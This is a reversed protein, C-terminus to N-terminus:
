ENTQADQPFMSIPIPHLRRHNPYGIKHSELANQTFQAYGYIITMVILELYKYRTQIGKWNLEGTSEDVYLIPNRKLIYDLFEIAPKSLGGTTEAAFAIFRGSPLEFLKSYDNFKKTVANVASVGTLNSHLTEPSNDPRVITFDIVKDGLPDRVILDAEKRQADYIASPDLGNKIDFYSRVLNVTRKTNTSIGEWKCIESIIDRLRNHRPTGHGCSTLYFRDQNCGNHRSPCICDNVRIPAQLRDQMALEFHVTALRLRHNSPISLIWIHACDACNALFSAKYNGQLSDLFNQQRLKDEKYSVEKQILRAPSEFLSTLSLELPLLNENKLEKFNKVFEMITPINTVPVNSATSEELELIQKVRPFVKTLTPLILCWSGVYAARRTNTMSKVSLGGLKAPTQIVTRMRNVENLELTTRPINALDLVFDSTKNDFDKMSDICWPPPTGRIIHNVKPILCLRILQYLLHSYSKKTIHVNRIGEFLPNTLEEVRKRVWLKGKFPDNTVPLGLIEVSDTESPIPIGMQECQSITIEPIPNVSYLKCKDPRVQLKISGLKNKLEQFAEVTKDKPGLIVIDDMYAPFSCEPFQTKMDALTKRIGLCFLSPGLPDGQRVGEESSININHPLKINSPNKYLFEIVPFLALHSNPTAILQPELNTESDLDIEDDLTRLEKTIAERSITNFANKCDVSIAIHDPKNETYIRIYNVMSETGALVGPAGFQYKGLRRRIVYNLKWLACGAAIRLFVDGIAIPRIDNDNKKLMVGRADRLKLIWSPPNADATCAYISSVIFQILMIIPSKGSRLLSQLYGFTWGTPGGATWPKRSKIYAIMDKAQINLDSLYTRDVPTATMNSLDEGQYTTPHLARM